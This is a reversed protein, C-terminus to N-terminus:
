REICFPLLKRPSRIGERVRAECVRGDPLHFLLTYCKSFVPFVKKFQQQSEGFPSEFSRVIPSEFPWFGLRHGPLITASPSNSAIKGRSQGNKRAKRRLKPKSRGARGRSHENRTANGSIEALLLLNNITNELAKGPWSEATDSFRSDRSIRPSFIFPLWNPRNLQPVAIFRGAFHGWDIDFRQGAAQEIGV